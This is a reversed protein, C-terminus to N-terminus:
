RFHKALSYCVTDNIRYFTRDNIKRVQKSNEKDLLKGNADYFQPENFFALTFYIERRNAPTKKNRLSLFIMYKEKRNEYYDLNTIWTCQMENMDALLESVHAINFHYASLTDILQIDAADFHYVYRETDTIIQLGIKTFSKDHIEISFPNIRHIKKFDNKITLLKEQNENYYGATLKRGSTCSFLLLTVFSIVVLFYKM